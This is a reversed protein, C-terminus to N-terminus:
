KSRKVIAKKFGPNSAIRRPYKERLNQNKEKFINLNM